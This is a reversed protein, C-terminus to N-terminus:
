SLIGFTVRYFLVLSQRILLQHLECLHFLNLGLGLAACISASSACDLSNASKFSLSSALAAAIPLLRLPRAENSEPSSVPM